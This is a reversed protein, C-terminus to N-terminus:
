PSPPSNTTVFAPTSYPPHRNQLPRADTMLHPFPRGCLDAFEALRTDAPGTSPTIPGQAPLIRQVARMALGNPRRGVPLLRTRPSPPATMGSPPARDLAGSGLFSLRM